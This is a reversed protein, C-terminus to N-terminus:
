LASAIIGRARDRLAEPECSRVEERGIAPHIVMEVSGPHLEMGDPTLIRDSGRITVPLVPLRLDRAMHFAGMKFAQLNGSRSRTGEPFFLISTGPQLNNELRHLERVAADHDSRDLFVHGLMAAGAGILPIKGVEKKMVWKLDLPMWGYLIPIDILSLHNAVVIYSTDADINDEGSLSLGCPVLWLLGRGWLGGFLRSAVRASFPAVVVVGLFNLLTWLGLFPMFVLIKYIRYLAYGGLTIELFVILTYAIVFPCRL